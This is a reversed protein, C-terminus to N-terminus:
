RGRRRRLTSALAAFALLSITSPEPIPTTYKNVLYEQVGQRDTDSLVSDFVLVDLFDFQADASGAGRQRDSVDGVYFDGYTNDLGSSPDGDSLVQNDTFTGDLVDIYEDFSTKSEMVATRIVFESRVLGTGYGTDIKAGDFRSTGNGDTGVQWNWAGDENGLVLQSGFGGPRSQGDTEDGGRVVFIMTRTQDPTEVLDAAEMLSYDDINEHDPFRVARYSFTNLAVTEM